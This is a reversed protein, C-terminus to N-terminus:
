RGNPTKPEYLIVRANMEVGQPPPNSTAIATCPWRARKLENMKEGAEERLQPEATKEKNTRDVLECTLFSPRAIAQPWAFSAAICVLM